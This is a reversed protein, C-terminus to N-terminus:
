HPHVAKPRQDAVQSKSKPQLVPVYKEIHRSAPHRPHHRSETKNIPVNIHAFKLNQQEPLKCHMISVVARLNLAGVDESCEESYAACKSVDEYGKQVSSVDELQILM